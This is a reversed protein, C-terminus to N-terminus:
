DTESSSYTEDDSTKETQLFRRHIAIKVASDIVRASPIKCSLKECLNTGINYLIIEGSLSSDENEGGFVYVDGRYQTVGYHIKRFDKITGAMKCPGNVHFEIISGNFFVIFIRGGSVVSKTLKAIIPLNGMKCCTNTVTDFCQILNTDCRHNMEGGFLIIKEGCVAASLSSVPVQLAGVKEWKDEVINYKEVTPIMRKGEELCHDYGGLVYLAQTFAVTVHRRRGTCLSGVIKWKNRNSHYYLCSNMVCGGGTVYIDNGHACASFEIGPDYPLSALTFWKFQAFSFAFVDKRRKYPPTITVSGAIIVFVEEMKFARRSYALVSSAEQQRGTFLKFREAEDVAERVTIDDGVPSDASKLYSLREMSMHGLRLHKILRGAYAKRKESDFKLWELVANSVKDEDSVNLGDDKIIELLENFDLSLFESCKCIELFNDLIVRFAKSRLEYCCNYIALKWIDVCNEADLQGLLIAECKERLTDIQLLTSAHLLQEVNDERVVDKGTYMFDLILQFIRSDMDKFTIEGRECERMGSSFMADFYPSVASLVSRHGEFVQDEVHIKVDTHAKNLYLRELGDTLKKMHSESLGRHMGEKREETGEKGEEKVESAM